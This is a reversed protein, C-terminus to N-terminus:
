CRIKLEAKDDHDLTKGRSGESTETRQRKTIIGSAHKGTLLLVSINVLGVGKITTIRM